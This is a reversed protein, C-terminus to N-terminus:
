TDFQEQWFRNIDPVNLKVLCMKFYDRFETSKQMHRALFPLTNHKDELTKKPTVATIQGTEVSFPKCTHDHFIMENHLQFLAQGSYNLPFELPELRRLDIQLKTKCSGQPDYYLSVMYRRDPAPTKETQLTYVYLEELKADKAPWSLFKRHHVTFQRMVCFHAALEIQHNRELRPLDYLLFLQPCVGLSECETAHMHFATFGISSRIFADIVSDENLERFFQVYKSDLVLLEGINNSPESFIPRLLKMREIDSFLRYQFINLLALTLREKFFAISKENPQIALALKVLIDSPLSDFTFISIEERNRKM